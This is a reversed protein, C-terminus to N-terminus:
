FTNEKSIIRSGEAASAAAMEGRLFSAVSRLPPTNLSSSIVNKDRKKKSLLFFQVIQCTL